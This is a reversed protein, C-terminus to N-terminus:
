YGRATIANVRQRSIGLSRAIDADSFGADKMDMIKTNRDTKAENGQPRMPVDKNRLIRLIPTNSCKKLRAIDAVTLRQSTYLRCIELQEDRTFDLQKPM